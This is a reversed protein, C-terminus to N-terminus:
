APPNFISNPPTGTALLNLTDCRTSPKPLNANTIETPMPPCVFPVRPGIYEAFRNTNACTQNILLNIRLGESAGKLPQSALATARLSDVRTCNAVKAQLYASELQAAKTSTPTPICYSARARQIAELTACRKANMLIQVMRGGETDGGKSSSTCPSAM